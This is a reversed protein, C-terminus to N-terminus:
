RLTRLDATAKEFSQRAAQARQLFPGLNRLDGTTNMKDLFLVTNQSEVFAARLDGHFRRLRPPPQMRAFRSVIGRNQTLFASTLTRGAMLHTRIDGNSGQSQQNVERLKLGLNLLNGVGEQLLPYVEELYSREADNAGLPLAGNSSPAVAAAKSATGDTPDAIYGAEEADAVNAFGIVRSAPQRMMNPSSPIHYYTDLDTSVFKWVGGAIKYRDDPLYHALYNAPPRVKLRAAEIASPGLGHPNASASGAGFAVLALLPLIPKM